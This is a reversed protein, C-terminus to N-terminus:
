LTTQTAWRKWEYIIIYNPWNQMNAMGENGYNWEDPMLNKSDCLPANNKNCSNLPSTWCRNRGVSSKIRTKIKSILKVPIIATRGPRKPM